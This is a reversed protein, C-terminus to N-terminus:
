LCESIIELATKFGGSFMEKSEALMMKSMLSYLEDLMETKDEPLLKGINDFLSSLRDYAAQYDANKIYVSNEESYIYYLKEIIKEM